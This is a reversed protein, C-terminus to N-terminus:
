RGLREQLPTGYLSEADVAGSRLARVLHDELRRVTAPEDLVAAGQAGDAGDVNGANSAHWRSLRDIVDDIGDLLHAFVTAYRSVLHSVHLDWGQVYGDALAHRVVQAHTSWVRHLEDQTDERPVVNTSGDSLRIETGAFTVQMLHRVLDCAPHQPRQEGPPLGLGATYDYVGLHAGCIRGEGAARLDRLVVRGDPGLVSATTEIQVEFRLRGAPLGYSHELADLVSVFAAVHEVAVIKPFTIVFGDPLSGLHHLLTGVFRDLSTISRLALGDTFAKVRLGVYPPAVGARVWEAVATAAAVADRAEEDDSRGLYGDELDVRLDEIPESGLKAAVRERVDVARDRAIGITTAFTEADVAHTDLLRRAETGYSTPLDDTIRDAPVYLVQVPQRTPPVGPWADRHAADAAEVGSLLRAITAADLRPDM